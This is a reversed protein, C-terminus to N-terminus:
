QAAQATVQAQKIEENEATKAQLQKELEAIKLAMAANDEDVSSVVGGVHSQQALSATQQQQVLENNQAQLQTKDEELRKVQGQLEKLRQNMAQMAAPEEQMLPAERISDLMVSQRAKKVSAATSTPTSISGRRAQTTGDKETLTARFEIFAGPYITPDGELQKQDSSAQGQAAIVAREPTPTKGLYESMDFTCSGVLQNACFLELKNMDPLLGGDPNVTFRSDMQFLAQNRQFTAETVQQDVSLKKTKASQGNRTWQVYVEQAEQVQVSAKFIRLEVAMKKKIAAM